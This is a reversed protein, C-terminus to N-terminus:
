IAIHSVSVVELNQVMQNLNGKMTIQISNVESQLGKINDSRTLDRYKREFEVMSLQIDDAYSKFVSQINDQSIKPLYVENLSKLSKQELESLMKYGIREPFDRIVIAIFVWRVSNDVASLIKWETNMSETHRENSTISILILKDIIDKASHRYVNSQGSNKNSIYDIVIKRNILSAIAIYSISSQIKKM